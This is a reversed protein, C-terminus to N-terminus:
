PQPTPTAPLGSQGASKLWTQLEGNQRLLQIEAQQLQFRADVVSLYKERESIRANQEDKPTMQPGNPNGTGNQLELHLVDLQQQALQQQLGAVEGQARLEEISRRTRSKGDLADLELNQADHLAKSADAMTERAKAARLKDFFPLTIQVGCAAEDSGIHAGNQSFQQLTKFSNTFTAYRNYQVFLNVQPRFRFKSDGEAQQLKAAANAFASAIGLNAYQQTEGSREAPMPTQPFSNEIELSGAPLGILRALHETDVATDDQARLEALHFQAATLKAQTLDIQTDQGANVRDEVITVLKNADDAEQEIVGQRERDHNMLVFALATDQAVTERVDQLALQASNLGARASRVYFSQSANYVLSGATVTFLTPPNPLYGYGQGLGAGANVAPIYVDHTESLSAQARMVEAQASLVRPNSKIALDVAASLSIQAGAAPVFFLAVGVAGAVLRFISRGLWAARNGRGGFFLLM